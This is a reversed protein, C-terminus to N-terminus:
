DLDFYSYKYQKQVKGKHFGSCDKCDMVSKSKMKRLMVYWEASKYPLRFVGGLKHIDSKYSDKDAAANSLYLRRNISDKIVQRNFM